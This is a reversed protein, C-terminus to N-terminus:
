LERLNRSHQSTVRCYKLPAVVALADTSKFWTCPLLRLSQPGQTFLYAPELTIEIKSTPNDSEYCNMKHIM